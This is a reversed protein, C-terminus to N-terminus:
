GTWTVTANTAGWPAGSISGFAKNVTISASETNALEVPTLTIDAPYSNVTAAQEDLWETSM